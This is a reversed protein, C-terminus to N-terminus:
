TSILLPMSMSSTFFFTDSLMFFSYRLSFRSTRHLYPPFLKWKEKDPSFVLAVHVKEQIILAARQFERMFVNGFIFGHLARSKERVGTLSNTDVSPWFKRRASRQVFKQSEAECSSVSGSMRAKKSLSAPIFFQLSSFM